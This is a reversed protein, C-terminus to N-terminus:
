WEWSLREQSNFARLLGGYATVASRMAFRTSAFRLMAPARPVAESYAIDLRNQIRVHVCFEKVKTFFRKTQSWIRAKQVERLWM